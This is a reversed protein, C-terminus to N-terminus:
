KAYIDKSILNEYDKLSSFYSIDINLSKEIKELNENNVKIFISENIKNKSEKKNQFSDVRKSIISELSIFHQKEENLLNLPIKHTTSHVRKNAKILWPSLHANLLEKDVKLGSNKLKAKLPKYFNNKLYLNFREVKGKTEPRYPKCLKPIFKYSKAFELFKDNFGHENKSYKDRKIVVSKLNDYLITKPIGGFYEFANKHCRQFTEQRMNDTIEVYAFRSYGLVMVFGYLPEKGSRLFTWDCQAQFGPTTEFRIIREDKKSFKADYITKLFSQLIRTKGKYGMEKIEEYIVSSPIRDPLASEVRDQIYDKYDDLKSKFKRKKYPELKEEKLRKSITRRNIGTMRAIARISYGQAKLGHIM